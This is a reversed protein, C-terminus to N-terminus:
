IRRRRGDSSWLSSGFSRFNGRQTGSCYTTRFSCILPQPSRSKIDEFHMVLFTEWRTKKKNQKKQQKAKLLTPNLLCILRAMTWNAGSILYQDFWWREEMIILTEHTLETLLKSKSIGKANKRLGVHTDVAFTLRLDHYFSTVVCQKFLIFRECVSGAYHKSRFNLATSQIRGRKVAFAHADNNKLLELWTNREM